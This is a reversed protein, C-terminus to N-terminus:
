EYRLAVTPDIRSARWAPLYAAPLAALVIVAVAVLMTLTDFSGLGYLSSSLLRAVLVSAVVGIGLGIAVIRFTEQLVMGIVGSCPAGLAMRIGIEATRRVTMYSMVGYLGIAALLLALVGFFSSLKAILTEQDLTEDILASATKLSTVPLNPDFSKFDRRISDSIASPELRTRIEFNIVSIEDRHQLFPEYM